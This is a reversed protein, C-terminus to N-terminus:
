ACSGRTPGALPRGVTDSKCLSRDVLSGMPRYIFVRFRLFLFFFTAHVNVIPRLNGIMNACSTHLGVSIPQPSYKQAGSVRKHIKCVQNKKHHNSSSRSLILLHPFFLPSPLLFHLIGVRLSTLLLFPLPTYAPRLMKKKQGRGDVKSSKKQRVSSPPGCDVSYGVQVAKHEQM